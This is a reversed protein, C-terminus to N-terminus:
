DKISAFFMDTILAKGSSEDFDISARTPYPPTKDPQGFSPPTKEDNARLVYDIVMSRVGGKQGSMSQVKLLEFWQMYPEYMDPQAKAQAVSAFYRRSVENVRVLRQDLASQLERPALQDSKKAVLEQIYNGHAIGSEWVLDLRDPNKVFRDYVDPSTAAMNWATSREIFAAVLDEDSLGAPIAIEGPKFYRIV